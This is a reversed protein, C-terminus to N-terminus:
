PSHNSLLFRHFKGIRYYNCQKNRNGLLRVEGAKPTIPEYELGFEHKGDKKKRWFLPERTFADYFQGSHHAPEPAVPDIM